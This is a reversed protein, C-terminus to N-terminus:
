FPPLERACDDDASIMQAANYRYAITRITAGKWLEETERGLRDFYHEIVKGNRDTSKGTVNRGICKRSPRDLDEL